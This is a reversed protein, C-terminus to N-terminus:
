SRVGLEYSTVGLEFSSVRLEYSRVRIRVEYFRYSLQALKYCGRKKRKSGSPGLPVALDFKIDGWLQAPVGDQKHIVNCITRDNKSLSQSGLVLVTCLNENNEVKKFSSKTNQYLFYM